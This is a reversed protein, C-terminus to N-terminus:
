FILFTDNVHGKLGNRQAYASERSLALIMGIHKRVRLSEEGLLRDSRPDPIKLHESSNIGRSEHVLGGKLHSTLPVREGSKNNIWFSYCIEFNM